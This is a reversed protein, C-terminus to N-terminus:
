QLFERVAPKLNTSNQIAYTWYAPLNKSSGDRTQVLLEVSVFPEFTEHILENLSRYTEFDLPTDFFVHIKWKRENAYVDVNEIEGNQIIDNDEFKDPFKIQDLLKKFLENKKTM